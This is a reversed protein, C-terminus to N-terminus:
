SRCRRRTTAGARMRFDLLECGFSFEFPDFTREFGGVEVSAKDDDRGCVIRFDVRGDVLAGQDRCGRCSPRRCGLQSKKKPDM